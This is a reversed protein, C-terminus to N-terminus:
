LDLHTGGGAPRFYVTGGWKVENALVDALNYAASQLYMTDHRPWHFGRGAFFINQSDRGGSPPTHVGNRYLIADNAIQTRVMDTARCEQNESLYLNGGLIELDIGVNELSWETWSETTADIEDNLDYSIFGFGEVPDVHVGIERNQLNLSEDTHLGTEVRIHDAHPM